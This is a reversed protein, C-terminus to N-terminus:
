STGVNHERSQAKLITNKYHTQDFIATLIEIVSSEFKSKEILNVITSPNFEFKQFGKPSVNALCHYNQLEKAMRQSPFQTLFSIISSKIPLASIM